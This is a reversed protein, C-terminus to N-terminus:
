DVLPTFDTDTNIQVMQVHTFYQLVNSFSLPSMMVVWCIIVISGEGIQEGCKTFDLSLTETIIFHMKFKAYLKKAHLSEQSYLQNQKIRYKNLYFLVITLM